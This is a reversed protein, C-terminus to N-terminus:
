RKIEHIYTFGCVEVILIVVAINLTDLITKTKNHSNIKQSANKDM